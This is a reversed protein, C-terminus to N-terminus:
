ANFQAVGFMGTSVPVAAMMGLTPMVALDLRKTGDSAVGPTITGRVDGTTATATTAVAATFTAKALLVSDFYALLDAFVTARLGLGFIDTTGVAYTHGADTFAPTASFVFKFAKKGNVTSAAVATIDETLPVGYIDAGRVRVVGGTAGANATVSVCRALGQSALYFGSAFGSSTGFIQYSPVGDIALNGAPITTNGGKVNAPTAMVTIGAGTVSVLPLAVGSAAAHAAAINGTAATAPAAGAVKVLSAAYFAQTAGTDDIPSYAVRPDILGAGMFISSPAADPSPNGSGPPGQQPIVVIPAYEVLGAAM